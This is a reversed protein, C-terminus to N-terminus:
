SAPSGDTDFRDGVAIGRGNAWELPSLRKKGSPQLSQIRVAGSGCAVLLGASDVALVEGPVHSVGRPAVRAGFLKVELGNVASWAAPKPDYARIHRSVQYADGTWSVRAADRTLKGAYTARSDDQAEPQAAGLEILALAEILANAGLESLRLSLELSTEDELIPTRAVHVIPGADLAPVMQMITVGTEALGDRIAAQIPAAGRLAPLLSAHINLTGLRPLDIVAKPLIHGYAVVVSVDPALAGIEAVFADGRPKEPQLVPIGEAVAVQKVPSPQVTSRSRGVPKDTQTVVGVVDFGEGILARLPATAFEPTGWFLVRM